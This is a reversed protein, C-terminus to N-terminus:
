SLNVIRKFRVGNRTFHALLGLKLNSAKLYSYIQSIDNKSFYDRVKLELIIKEDILFDFYYIGIVKDHYYIKTPVQEGFNLGSIKFGEATARQYFREKHGSGVRLWVDFLVGLIQYSLEPYVIDKRRLTNM